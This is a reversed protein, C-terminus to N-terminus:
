RAAPVSASVTQVLKNHTTSQTSLEATIETDLETLRAPTGVDTWRGTFHEGTILSRSIASQLLPALRAKEGPTIGAFFESRYVAVGSFTLRTGPQDTLRGISSHPVPVHNFDGNPNHPPNDIM